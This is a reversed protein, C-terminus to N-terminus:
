IENELYDLFDERSAFAVPEEESIKKLKEKYGRKVAPQMCDIEKEIKIVKKKLFDLDDAIKRLLADTM